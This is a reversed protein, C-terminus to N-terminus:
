HSKSSNVMKQNFKDLEAELKGIASLRLDFEKSWQRHETSLVETIAQVYNYLLDVQGNFIAKHIENIRKWLNSLASVTRGYREANRKDQNTEEINSTMSSLAAAILAFVSIASLYNDGFGLYSSIGNIIVVATLAGASLFLLNGASKEHERGRNKYYNHQEELLYRRIYELKLHDLPIAQAEAQDTKELIVSDFYKLRMSEAMSRKEMWNKLLNKKSVIQQCFMGSAGFVVSLIGIISFVTKSLNSDQLHFIIMWSAFTALCASFVATLFVSWRMRNSWLTFSDRYDTADWDYEEYEKATIALGASKLLDALHPATEAYLEAHTSPNIRYDTDKKEGIIQHASEIMENLNM